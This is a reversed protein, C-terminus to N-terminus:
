ISLVHGMRASKARLYEKAEKSSVNVVCPIRKVVNVGSERLCRIKRPNNTMLAIARVELHELIPKVCRYERADDPLGLKRNADVTDVGQEQLHYAAIKNAIGIGRGEQPLYLVIGADHDKIHKLATQLQDNCDCRLSGFVESTVCQDHVRVPVVAGPKSVNGYVIALPEANTLKDRYAFIRFRGYKTPLMTSAVFQMGGELNVRSTPSVVDSLPWSVHGRRGLSPRGDDDCPTCVRDDKNYMRKQRQRREIEDEIDELCYSRSSTRLSLLSPVTTISALLSLVDDVHLPPVPASNDVCVSDPLPITVINGIFHTVQNTQKSVLPRISLLNWFKSGSKTYNLLVVSCPKEGDLAYRIDAVDRPDTHEGQLFNCKRGYTEARGHGTFKVFEDNTLVIRGQRDTVVCLMPVPLCGSRAKVTDIANQIDMERRVIHNEEEKRGNKEDEEKTTASMTSTKEQQNLYRVMEEVTILPLDYEEAFSACDDLRKMTGDDNVLEGIVGVPARGALRCLDVAAETHGRRELVGRDRAILPFIHGPRSFSDAKCGDADALERFTTARDGASVGTTTRVSDCTITFATGNPDQNKKVMRPLKLEKARNKYMPACLIGTTHRVIFACQKATVRDAAMILDGENERGEDDMVIVMGGEAIVRIAEEMTSFRVKKEGDDKNMEGSKKEEEIVVM